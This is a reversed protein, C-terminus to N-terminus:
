PAGGSGSGGNFRNMAVAAGDAIITEVADAALSVALAMEEAEARRPARLVYDAGAAASPPKGIGIRVRVFGTKGTSDRISRLGNHGALGGGVKVRVTGPPLDLEDHVVVLREIEKIGYRRLLLAVAVGSANMFTHPVALVIQSGGPDSKLEAVAARSRRSGVLAVGARRSVESVADGGVNHRTGAYARGPNQLGVVLLTM